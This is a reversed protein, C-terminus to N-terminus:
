KAEKKTQSRTQVRDKRKVQIGYKKYIPTSVESPTPEDTSTSTSPVQATKTARKPASINLKEKKSKQIKSACPMTKTRVTSTQELHERQRGSRLNYYERNKDKTSEHVSKRSPRANHSVRSPPEHREFTRVDDNNDFTINRRQRVPEDDRDPLLRIIPQTNAANSPLDVNINESNEPSQAIEVPISINIPSNISINEKVMFAPKCRDWSIIRENEFVKIQVTKEFRQLVKYPGSYPKQFGTRPTDVQVYVFEASKLHKSVFVPPTGHHAPQAVFKNAIKRMNFIIEEADNNEVKNFFDGPLRLEEGLALQAASYGSDTQISSRLGLLITPLADVWNTVDAAMISAKLARHWREVKGNSQPHYATTTNKKAGIYKALNAFLKSEFQRGQDTTINEPVGFRAIWTHYLIKTVSEASIDDMPVAEPWRTARDIMTMLYKKGHSMPLPGVIDVHVHKFRQTPKFNGIPTKTRKGIKSLQCGHCAKAWNFVESKIKPWVFRSTMLKVTNKPGPHSLDHVSKMAMIRFEKPIFPRTHQTSVDCCLLVDSDPIKRMEFKLSTNKNQLLCQLEECKLQAQAIEEYPLIPKVSIQDVRSLADASENDEGKIYRIDTTFQGIYDLQRIQRPSAHDSGQKFAYTIPRHDTYVSFVRGELMHKFYRIGAFIALLERDYTSYKTETTSLRRSFFGLPQRSEGSIQYLTAGIAFDSADTALIIDLNEDPHAIMAANALKAKTAEFARLQEENFSIPTKDKKKCGKTMEHLVLMTHAAQPICRRYFNTMGLFRRLGHMDKPPPYDLIAQVKKSKPSIGGQSINYGLFDVEDKGFESKAVNITLGAEDLRALLQRLHHKHQEKNESFICIDDIYAYVFDLGRLLSDIFRQFTQASTKLGNPMKMSEFLGFPTIVATKKIDEENMPIQWYARNLDVKSFIKSGKMTQNFDMINPVPYSDNKCIANLARFDGTIRWTSDSKMVMHIPSSWDSKSPRMEGDAIMKYIAIKAAKLKEPTLRRARAKVPRCNPPTELVHTVETKYTSKKETTSIEIGPFERIIKIWENEEKITKVEPLPTMKVFGTVKIGTENDRLCKRKLDPSLDFHELFDAGLIATEVDTVQMVWRLSRRIGINFEVLKEGFVRIPTGNAAYLHRCPEKTFEDNTAPILSVDSGTDILFWTQSDHDKIFLQNRNEPKQALPKGSEVCPTTCHYANDGYLIHYKCKGQNEPKSYDIRQPSTSRRRNGRERSRNQRNQSQNQGYSSNGMNRGGSNGISLSLKEVQKKLNGVTSKLDNIEKRLTQPDNSSENKFSSEKKTFSVAHVHKKPSTIDKEFKFIKEARDALRKLDDVTKIETDSELSIILRSMEKPLAHRFLDAIIFPTIDTGAKEIMREMLRKPGEDDLEIKTLLERINQEKTKGYVNKLQASFWDFTDNAASPEIVEPIREIIELPMDMRIRKFLDEDKVGHAKLKGKVAKLWLEVKQSTFAPLTIHIDKSMTEEPTFSQEASSPTVVPSEVVSTNNLFRLSLNEKSIQTLNETSILDTNEALTLELTSFSEFDTQQLDSNEPPDSKQSKRNGSM